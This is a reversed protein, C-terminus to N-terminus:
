RKTVRQSIYGPIDPLDNM